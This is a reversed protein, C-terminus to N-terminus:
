SPKTVLSKYLDILMMDVAGPHIGQDLLQNRHAGVYVAINSLSETIKFHADLNDVGQIDINDM